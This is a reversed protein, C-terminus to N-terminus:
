QDAIIAEPLSIAAGLGARQREEGIVRTMREIEISQRGLSEQTCHDLAKM